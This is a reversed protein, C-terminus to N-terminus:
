QDMRNLALLKESRSLRISEMRSTASASWRISRSILAMASAMASSRRSSSKGSQPNESKPSYTQDVTITQGEAYSSRGSDVYEGKTADYIYWNGNEGIYPALTCIEQM